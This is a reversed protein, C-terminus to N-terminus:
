KPFLYSSALLNNVKFNTKPLKLGELLKQNACFRGLQILNNGSPPFIKMVSTFFKEGFLENAFFFQNM